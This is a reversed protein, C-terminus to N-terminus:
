LHCTCPVVICLRLHASVCPFHHCPRLGLSVHARVTSYSRGCSIRLLVLLGRHASDLEDVLHLLLVYGAATPELLLLRLLQDLIQVQVQRIVGLLQHHLALM